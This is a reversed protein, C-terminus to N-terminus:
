VNEVGLYGTSNKTAIVTNGTNLVVKSFYVPSFFFEFIEGKVGQIYM